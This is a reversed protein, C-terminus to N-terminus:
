RISDWLEREHARGKLYAVPRWVAKALGADALIADLADAFRVIPGPFHNDCYVAMERDDQKLRIVWQTGDAVNSSYHRGLSTLRNDAVAHRVRALDQAALTMRATEWGDGLETLRHLIVTGDEHVKITDLGHWGSGRGFEILFPQDADLHMAVGRVYPMAYWGVTLLALAFAAAWARRRSKVPRAILSM